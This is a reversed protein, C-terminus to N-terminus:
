LLLLLLSLLLVLLLLLPLQITIDPNVLLDVPGAGQEM